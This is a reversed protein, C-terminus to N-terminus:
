HKWGDYGRYEQYYGHGTRYRSDQQSYFNEGREFPSFLKQVFEESM